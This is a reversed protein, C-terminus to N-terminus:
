DWPCFANEHYYMARREQVSASYRAPLAKFGNRKTLEAFDPVVHVVRRVHSIPVASVSWDGDVEAPVKWKLRTCNREGLPFDKDPQVEEMNCVVAVDEEKFRILARVEGFHVPAASEGSEEDTVPAEGSVTYTIADLWPGKRRYEMSARLTQRLRTDCELIASFTVQGLVPVKENARMGLVSTLRGLGPRQALGGVAIRPLKHV